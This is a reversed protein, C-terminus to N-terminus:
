FNFDIEADAGSVSPPAAPPATRAPSNAAPSPAAVTPRTERPKADPTAVPAPNTVTRPIPVLTPAVPPLPRSVFGEAVRRMKRPAIRFHVVQDSSKWYGHLDPLSMIQEKSVVSRREVATSYNISAQRSADLPESAGVRPREREEEGINNSVWQAADSENCRLYIKLHSAALMTFANEGYHEKMQHKSQTGFISKIGYKRCEVMFTPLAPLYKLAHVEDVIFWCPHAQGWRREASLLRQMLINLFAAQLPRLMARTDQTSTIFIWGRRQSAWDSLSIESECQERKPLLRLLRAADSLTSIVATRQPGAKKNIKHAIETGAVFEDIKEESCMWEVLTSATPRQALMLMFVDRAAMTFFRSPEPTKDHCPFFSEAVLHLDAETSIESAPSWYPFRVDLPNLIIDTQPDYHAELFECAPDYCVGAEPTTRAAIQNIFQHITQSKGTGPDGLLFVSETEKQRSIRLVHSDDKSQMWNSLSRLM